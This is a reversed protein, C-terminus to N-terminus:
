QRLIASVEEDMLRLAEEPSLNGYLCEELRTNIVEEIEVWLPTAPPPLSTECQRLVLVEMPHDDYYPHELAKRSAPQVGKVRSSIRLAQDASVLFRALKMAPELRSGEPFVLIEAGAFSAHFGGQDPCPILGVGFDLQPADEPIRQLNWGGSIMMGIRGQKFMDDIMDQRELISYPKLSLYFKLAELNQPSDLESSTGDQSLVTGGNGWAFPLFKKYLVYREGANMGFGYIGKAPQNIVRAAQRLDSWTVPPRDPSLGSAGFLQRNYFLVRSGILWPVGFDRDGLQALEWMLLEGQIDQIADTVDLIAGEAAFKPLWTSGLELLDPVKGSAFAMVIKEYGSQWTLNEFRVKISPNEAQFEKILDEMIDPPQFQWFVVQAEDERSCSIAAVLAMVLLLVLYCSRGLHRGIELGGHPSRIARYSGRRGNAVTALARVHCFCAPPKCLSSKSLLSGGPSKQVAGSAAGQSGRGTTM